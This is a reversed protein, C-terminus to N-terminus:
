MNSTTGRMPACSWQTRWSRSTSRGLHIKEGGRDMAMEMSNWLITYRECLDHNTVIGNIHNDELNKFLGDFGDRLESRVDSDFLFDNAPVREELWDKWEEVHRYGPRMSYHLYTEDYMIKGQKMM